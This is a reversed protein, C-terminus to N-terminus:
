PINIECTWTNIVELACSLKHKDIGETVLCNPVLHHSQSSHRLMHPCSTYAKHQSQVKNMSKTRLVRFLLLGAIPIYCVSFLHPKTAQCKKIGKERACLLGPLNICKSAM